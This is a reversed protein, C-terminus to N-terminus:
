GGGGSHNEKGVVTDGVLEGTWERDRDPLEDPEGCSDCVAIEQLEGTAFLVMTHTAVDACWEVDDPSDGVPMECREAALASHVGVYEPEIDGGIEQPKSTSM